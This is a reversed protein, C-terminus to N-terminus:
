SVRMGALFSIKTLASDLDDEDAIGLAIMAGVLVTIEREEISFIPLNLAVGGDSSRMNNTARRYELVFAYEDPGNNYMSGFSIIDLEIPSVSVASAVRDGYEDVYAWNEDFDHFHEQAYDIIQKETVLFGIGASTTYDVSM